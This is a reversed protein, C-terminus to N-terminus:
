ESRLSKVPNIRAARLAQSSVTLWAIAISILAAGFFIWVSLDIRYAFQTLWDKTFLYAIPLAIIIAIFVLLIFDKSLMMVISSTSAGLVKRVGIEKLRREATFIALGFLGLCSILIAFGTFYSSLSAIRKESQYLAQYSTDLFTYDFTYSPAFKQYLAEIDALAKKERGAELRVAVNYTQALRFYAPEVSSHLSRYHFDKVVGIIELKFDKFLEIQKGIANTPSLGMVGAGSENIVIKTSDSAYRNDFWRGNVMEFGMTKQFDSDVFFREFIIREGPPKNEWNLGPNSSVQDLLSHSTRGANVVGPISRLENFFTESRNAIDGDQRFFVINDQNYGLSKNSIFQTQGHIVIFGIILIITITFQFIVLGKRAWIEGASNKIENKIVQIPSFHTLYFAPYSGALVGIILVMAISLLILETSFTLIITKGTISNFSPLLIIVLFISIIMSVLSIILTEGVYQKILGFRRAGISKRIGVEQAQKSARATSLNMFNICAIIVILIAIISFLRVYEIRGGDQVGNTYRGKLYQDSYKKLFLEVNSDKVKTKVLGSIKKTTTEPNANDELVVYTHPGTNAWDNAWQANALFDELPLVFDFNFTSKDNINEFVGTVTYNPVGQYEISKGIANEVSDFFKTALDRSICISSRDSLVTSSDGLLLPYSFMNFFDVGAHYGNERYSINEYTLVSPYIWTTTTAYKIDPFNEKLATGLLGPTGLSVNKENSYSQLSMVQYLQEDNKHFKDVAYEDQVWLYIFFACTIGTTLGILNIISSSKNKLLKRLTIKLYYYM